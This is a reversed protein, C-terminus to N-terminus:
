ARAPPAAAGASARLRQQRAERLAGCEAKHGARWAVRQCEELCFRVSRCGRCLLLHGGDSAAGSGCQLCSLGPQAARSDVVEPLGGAPALAAAEAAAEAALLAAVRCEKSWDLCAALARAAAPLLAPPAAARLRPLLDGGGRRAAAAICRFLAFLEPSDCYDGCWAFEVGDPDLEWALPQLAGPAAVFLRALDAAAAPPGGHALVGAAALADCCAEFERPFAGRAAAGASFSRAEEADSNLLGVLSALAGPAPAAEAAACAPGDVIWYFLLRLWVGWTEAGDPAARRAAALRAAFAGSLGETNHLVAHFAGGSRHMIAYLYRGVGLVHEDELGGGVLLRAAALAAPKHAALRSLLASDPAGDADGELLAGGTHFALAGLASLAAAAGDGGPAALALLAGAADGPASLLADAFAALEPRRCSSDGTHPSSALGDDFAM